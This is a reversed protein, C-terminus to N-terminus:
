SLYKSFTSLFDKSKLPVGIFIKVLSFLSRAHFFKVKRGTPVPKQQRSNSAIHYATKIKGNYNRMYLPFINAIYAASVGPGHVHRARESKFDACDIKEAVKYLAANGGYRSIENELIIDKSTGTNRNGIEGSIKETKENNYTM